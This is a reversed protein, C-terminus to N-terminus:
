DTCEQLTVLLSKYDHSTYSLSLKSLDQIINYKLLRSWCRQIVPDTSIRATLKQKNIIITMETCLSPSLLQFPLMCISIRAKALILFLIRPFFPPLFVNKSTIYKNQTVSEVLIYTTDTNYLIGETRGYNLHTTSNLASDLILRLDLRAHSM